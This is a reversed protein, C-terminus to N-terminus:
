SIQRAGGLGPLRPTTPPVADRPPPAPAAVPPQDDPQEDGPPQDGPPQDGPPQDGPPRDGPPQDGPPQDGPPPLEASPVWIYEEDPMPAGLMEEVRAIHAPHLEDRRYAVYVTKTGDDKVDFAWSIANPPPQPKDYKVPDTEKATPPFAVPVASDVFTYFYDTTFCNQDTRAVWWGGDAPWRTPVGNNGAKRKVGKNPPPKPPTVLPKWDLSEPEFYATYFHQNLNMAALVPDIFYPQPALHLSFDALVTMSPHWFGRREGASASVSLPMLDDVFQKVISKGADWTRTGERVGGLLSYTTSDSGHHPATIMFVTGLKAKVGAKELVNVAHAITLGTADGTAIVSVGGFKAAVVLSKTNIAFGDGRDNLDFKQKKKDSMTVTAGTTNAALVWLEIDGIKALPEWTSQDPNDFSSWAIQLQKQVAAKKAGVPAYDLLSALVNVKGKLYFSYTGGFWTRKVTLSPTQKSKPTHFNALLRPLLNHHDSDSHSILVEDLWPTTASMKLLEQAVIDASPKGARTKWAESGIDVIGANKAVANPAESDFYQVFNASGQGVDMVIFRMHSM